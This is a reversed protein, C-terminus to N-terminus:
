ECYHETISSILYQNCRHLEISLCQKIKKCVFFAVRGRKIPIWVVINKITETKCICLMAFKRYIIIVTIGIILTNVVGCQQSM